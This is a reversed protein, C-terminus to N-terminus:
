RAQAQVWQLLNETADDDVKPVIRYVASVFCFVAFGVLGVCIAAVLARGYPQGTLWSLAEQTGGAANPDFRWAAFVFLGGVIALVVGKAVLGATLVWSWRQTFRNSALHERYKETWGKYVQCGGTVIVAVGVGGVLLRGGPVEMVASLWQTSSSGGSGGGGVFLLTFALVGLGVHVAASGVLGLRVAMGKAHNGHEELDYAADVGRWLAFAFMGVMIVLLVISGGASSQLREMASSTGEAQGGLWISYLSYGAVALYVVGRGAYGARMVPISWSLDQKAM